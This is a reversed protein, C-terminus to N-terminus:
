PVFEMNPFLLKNFKMLPPKNTRFNVLYSKVIIEVLVELHRPSIIPITVCPILCGLIDKTSQEGTLHSIAHSPHGKRLEIILNLPHGAQHCHPGLLLDVDILGIGRISIFPKELPNTGYVIKDRLQFHPADDAILLHNKHLLALALESKGIGPEGILLTGTEFINLFTGHLTMKEPM